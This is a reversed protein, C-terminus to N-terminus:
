FTVHDAKPGYLKAASGFPQTRRSVIAYEGPSPGTSFELRESQQVGSPLDNEILLRYIIIQTQQKEKQPKKSGTEPKDLTPPTGANIRSQLIDSREAPSISLIDLIQAPATLPDPTKQGKGATFFPAAQRYLEANMGLVGRMESVTIFPRNAPDPLGANQYARAEAGRPRAEDDKDRWDAIAAGLAEADPDSLGLQSFFAAFLEEDAGNLDILGRTDILWYTLRMGDIAFRYPRGDAYLPTNETLGLVTRALVAESAARSKALDITVSVDKAGLRASFSAIALAASAATLVAIVMLLIFGDQRKM